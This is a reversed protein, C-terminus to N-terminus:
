ISSRGKLFKLNFIFVQFGHDLATKLFFRVIDQDIGCTVPTIKDTLTGCVLQLDCIVIIQM